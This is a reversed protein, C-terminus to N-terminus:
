KLLSKKLELKLKQNFTFKIKIKSNRREENLGNKLYVLCELEDRLNENWSILRDKADCHSLQGLEKAYKLYYDDM